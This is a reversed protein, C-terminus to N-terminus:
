NGERRRAKAGEHNHLNNLGDPYSFQYSPWSEGAVERTNWELQYERNRDPYSMGGPYPIARCARSPCRAWRRRM